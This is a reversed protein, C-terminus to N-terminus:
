SWRAVEHPLGAPLERTPMAAQHIVTGMVSEIHDLVRGWDQGEARVRAQRGLSSRRAADGALSVAAQVFGPADAEDVTLGNHGPVILEAAAARHFALVPLGSAMAETTVNGFTETLSPFLFLDASAYHAALDEGRRQGALVADPCQRQLEARMPGDGVLVLRAAPQQQRLAEFSQLLLALNKEAALRGVHLVVVEDPAVGWQQRLAASRRRPNFLATDVGRSVVRLGQYGAAALEQRLAETPVMTAHAANHFRRLYAMIAGCLWGIGYHQSYAHFNTRFDTSVPLGLRRAARLASWGLPGETAIHVLDPRQATWRKVLRATAPLGMRLHPYRPIPLGRVLHHQPGQADAPLGTDNPGQCPRTLEVRHGRQHLGEVVKALSLSVGNVEPPYTETVVAIHLAHPARLANALCTHAHVCRACATLCNSSLLGTHSHRHRKGVFPWWVTVRSERLGAVMGPRPGGPVPGM